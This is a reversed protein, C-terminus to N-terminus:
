WPIIAKTRISITPRARTIAKGCIAKHSGPVMIGPAHFRLAYLALAPTPIFGLYVVQYATDEIAAQVAKMIRPTSDRLDGALYVTAGPQLGDHAELFKLFGRTNMYCELDTMDVVLGRLGSTGFNLEKPEYNLSERLTAM